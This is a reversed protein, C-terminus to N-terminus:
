EEEAKKIVKVTDAKITVPIPVAAETLEVTLEEKNKDVRMVKAKEGKFPGSIVEVIDYKNISLIPAKAAEILGEIERIEINKSLVGRIHPLGFIAKRIDAENEAEIIIYGRLDEFVAIVKIPHKEKKIKRLLMDAVVHEQGTTVRSAYLM